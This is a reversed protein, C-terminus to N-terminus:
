GGISLVGTCKTVLPNLMMHTTGYHVSYNKKVKKKMVLLHV